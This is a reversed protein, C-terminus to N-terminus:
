GTCGHFSRWKWRQLKAYLISLYLKSPTTDVAGRVMLGGGGHLKDCGSSGGVRWEQAREMITKGTRGAERGRLKGFDDRPPLILVGLFLISARADACSQMIHM